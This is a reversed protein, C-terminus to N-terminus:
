KVWSLSISAKARKRPRQRPAKRTASYALADVARLRQVLEREEEKWLQAAPTM